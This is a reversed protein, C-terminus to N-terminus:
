LGQKTASELAAQIFQMCGMRDGATLAQMAQSIQGVTPSDSPRDTQGLTVSRDLMRTQAMELSQETEGTRGAALSGQAARLYDSPKDGAPLNPSPLPALVTNASVPAPQAVAAATLTLLLATCVALFRM